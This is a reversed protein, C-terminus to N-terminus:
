RKTMTVCTEGVEYSLGYAKAITSVAIYLDNVPLTGTFNDKAVAGVTIIRIGYCREVTAIVERLPTNDFRLLKTRWPSINRMDANSTVTIRGTKYDVVARDGAALSAIQKSLTATIDVKGEQLDLEARGKERRTMLNFKTGLVKVKVEKADIIFPREPNRAVHFYAEGQFDIHRRSEDFSEPTYVLMSQENLTVKTGDPLTITTKEGAQTTVAIWNGAMSRNEAYFHYSLMVLAPILVAAAALLAKLLRIARDPRAKDDDTGAPATGNTGSITSGITQWVKQRTEDPVPRAAAVAEGDWYDKMMRAIEEDSQAGVQQRLAKLEESTITGDIYKQELETM